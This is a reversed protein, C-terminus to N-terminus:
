SLRNQPVVSLNDSVLDLSSAMKSSSSSVFGFVEIGNVCVDRVDHSRLSEHQACPHSREFAHQLFFITYPKLTRKIVWRM